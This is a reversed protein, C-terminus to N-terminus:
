FIIKIKLIKIYKVIIKKMFYIVEGQTKNAKEIM